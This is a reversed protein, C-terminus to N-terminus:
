KKKTAPIPKLGLKRYLKFAAKSVGKPRTRRDTRADLLHKQQRLDLMAQKAFHDESAAEVELIMQEAAETNHRASRFKAVDQNTVRGLQLTRRPANVNSYLRGM